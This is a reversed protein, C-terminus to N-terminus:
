IILRTVKKGYSELLKIAYGNSHDSSYIIEAINSEAILKACTPCPLLNIVLTSGTLNVGQKGAMVILNAEAHITDYNNLDGSQSFNQERLSGFHMSYSQYPVVKNFSSLLVKQNKSIIAGVQFTWDFSKKSEEISLKLLEISSYEKNTNISKFNGEIKKAFDIAEKTNSFPSIFKYPIKKNIIQWFEARNHIATHWSGNVFLIQSFEVQKLIYILDRQFYEISNFDDKLILKLKSKKLTKFQECDELGLIYEDKAIGWILKDKFLSNLKKIRSETIDISALLFIKKSKSLEEIKKPSIKNWDLNM